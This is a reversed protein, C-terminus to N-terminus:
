SCREYEDLAGVTLGAFDNADLHGGFWAPAGPLELRAPDFLRDGPVSAEWDVVGVVRGRASLMQRRCHEGRPVITGPLSDSHSGLTNTEEGIHTAIQGTKLGHCTRQFM